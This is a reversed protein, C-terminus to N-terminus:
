LEVLTLRVELDRGYEEWTVGDVGPAAKKKLNSYSDRLLEITIHHLLVTFRLKGDKKAAERVRDRGSPGSGQSPTWDPNPQGLNEKTLTRGEVTEAPPGGSKNSPRAPVIGSYSEGSDHVHTKHSM